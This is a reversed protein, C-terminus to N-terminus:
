GEDTHEEIKEFMEDISNATKVNGTKLDYTSQKEAEIWEITHYREEGPEIKDIFVIMVKMADKYPVEEQPIIQGNRYIGKIATQAM